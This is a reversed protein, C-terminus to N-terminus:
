KKKRKFAQKLKYGLTLKKESAAKNISTELASLELFIDSFQNFGLSNSNFAALALKQQIAILQLLEQSM